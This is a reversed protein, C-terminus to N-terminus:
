PEVDSWWALLVKDCARLALCATDDATLQHDPLHMVYHVLVCALLLQLHHQAIDQVGQGATPWLRMRGDQSSAVQRRETAVRQVTLILDRAKEHPQLNAGARPATLAAWLASRSSMGLLGLLQDHSAPLCHQREVALKWKAQATLSM